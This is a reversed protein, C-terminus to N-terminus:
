KVEIIKDINKETTEVMDKLVDKSLISEISIRHKKVRQLQNLSKNTKRMYARSLAICRQEYELTEKIFIQKCKDSCFSTISESNFYNGCYSCIKNETM